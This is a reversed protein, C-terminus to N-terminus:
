WKSAHGGCRPGPPDRDRHVLLTNKTEDRWTKKKGAKQVNLPSEIGKGPSDRDEDEVADACL